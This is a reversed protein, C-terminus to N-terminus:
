AALARILHHDGDLALARTASEGEPVTVFEATLWPARRHARRQIHWRGPVLLLRPEGDAGYVIRAIDASV